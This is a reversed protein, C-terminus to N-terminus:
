MGCLTHLAKRSISSHPNVACPYLNKSATGGRGLSNLVHVSSVTCCWISITAARGAAIGKLSSNHPSRTFSFRVAANRFAVLTSRQLFSNVSFIYATEHIQELGGGGGGNGVGLCYFVLSALVTPMSLLSWKPLRLAPNPVTGVRVGTKQFKQGWWCRVPLVDWHQVLRVAAVVFIIFLFHLSMCYNPMQTEFRLASM